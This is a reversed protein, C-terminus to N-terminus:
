DASLSGARRGSSRFPLWLLFFLLCAVILGGGLYVPWPGLLDLLSARLPKRCLYMYNTDFVWNFIGVGAVVACTIGMVTWLSASRPRSQRSWILALMATIAGGHSIFYQIAPISPFPVSLDPTLVAMSTGAITWYYALDTAWPRLTFLTIITLWIAADCLHLPLGHPFHIWGQQLRYVYSLMENALLIGGLCWRVWRARVTSGRSWWVLGAAALPVAGLISLHVPGFLTFESEM